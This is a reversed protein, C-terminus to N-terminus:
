EKGESTKKAYHPLILNFISFSQIFILMSWWSKAILKVRKKLKEKKHPGTFWRLCINEDERIAKVETYKIEKNAVRYKAKLTCDVISVVVAAIMWIPANSHKMTLLIGPPCVPSFNKELIQEDRTFRVTDM